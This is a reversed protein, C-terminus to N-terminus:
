ASPFRQSLHRAIDAAWARVADWDRFDGEPARLAAVVAREALGLRKRELRGAFVRHDVAGISALLEAADAPETDPMPPDGVPGSSFLWVARGRLEDEHRAALRKAPELWSGAYVGSGLVVADFGDLDTVEAPEAAEAQVGTELLGDRVALAIEWTAGHKSAATVLVKM